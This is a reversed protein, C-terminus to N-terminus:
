SGKSCNCGTSARLIMSCKRRPLTSTACTGTKVPPALAPQADDLIVQDVVDGGTAGFDAEEVTVIPIAFCM